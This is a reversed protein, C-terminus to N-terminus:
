TRSSLRRVLFSISITTALFAGALVMAFEFNGKSTELAIATSIVRTYGKIDGGLMLAIGLEGVARNFAILIVSALAPLSELIITMAAQRNSAGMTIALEWLETRASFLANRALSIILPTILVAQGISIALPTYLLKLFGLPGSGSLLIYIVLGIVVTPISVLANMIDLFIDGARSRRMTIIIAIPISWASALLTGISSVLLSRLIIEIVETLMEYVM